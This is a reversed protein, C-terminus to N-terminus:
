WTPKSLGCGRFSKLPPLLVPTRDRQDCPLSQIERLMEPVVKLQDDVAETKRTEPLTDLKSLLEILKVYDKVLLGNKTQEATLELVRQLMAGHQELVQRVGNFGEDLMDFSLIRYLEDDSEVNARFFYQVAEAILNQGNGLRATLLRNLNPYDRIPFNDAIQQVTEWERKLIAQSGNLEAFVGLYRSMEKLDLSGRNLIGAKRARRLEQLCARRFGDGAPLQGVAVTTFFVTAKERFLTMQPGGLWAQFRTRWNDDALSLELATWAKDNADALADLLKTPSVFLRNLLGEVTDCVKDAISVEPAGVIKRLALVSLGFFVLM